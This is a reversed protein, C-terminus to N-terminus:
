KLRFSGKQNKNGEVAMGEYVLRRCVNLVDWPLADIRDAIVVASELTNRSLAGLVEERSVTDKSAWLSDQDDDVVDGWRGFLYIQDRSIIFHSQCGTDRWVSPFLTISGRKRYLRWAKGAQGDLNISFVEGCGSPCMLVLLRPRGREVLVADGAVSLMGTTDSRSSVVGKLNLKIVRM